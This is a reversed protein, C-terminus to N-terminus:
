KPWRPNAAATPGTVAVFREDITLNIHKLIEKHSQADDAAFSINRLELM